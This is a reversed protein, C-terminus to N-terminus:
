EGFLEAVKAGIDDSRMLSEGVLVARVGAEALKRIDERNNIGSESVLV